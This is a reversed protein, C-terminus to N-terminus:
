HSLKQMQVTFKVQAASELRVRPEGIRVQVRRSVQGIVGSLDIPDTTIHDITKLRGEPGRIRAIPPEFSYSTVVYGDPAAKGYHPEIPVSKTYLREFRMALQSPVARYFSVGMPLQRINSENITFTQEGPQISSLDVVAATQALSDRTLRPAPGRVELLIREPVDSAIDLDAPVNKFLVPVSISTALEPERAVSVWLLFALLVSLLKWGLNDTLFRRMM